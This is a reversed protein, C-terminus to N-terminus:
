IKDYESNLLNKHERKNLVKQYKWLIQKITHAKIKEDDDNEDAFIYEDRKYDILKSIITPKIAKFVNIDLKELEKFIKNAITKQLFKDKRSFDCYIVLYANALKKFDDKSLHKFLFQVLESANNEEDYNGLNKELHNICNEIIVKKDEPDINDFENEITELFSHKVYEKWQTSKLKKIVLKKFIENEESICKKILISYKEQRISNTYVVPFLNLTKKSLEINNHYCSELKASFLDPPTTDLLLSSIENWNSDLQSISQKKRNKPLSQFESTNVCERNKTSAEQFAYWIFDKINVKEEIIDMINDKGHIVICTQKLGNRVASIFNDSLENYSIFLGLTGEIKSNIKGLFSFLKSAALTSSKEWKSEILFIKSKIEVAGDIQQESDATKYSNSLLIGQDECIKNLLKEFEFGRKKAKLKKIEEFKTLYNM